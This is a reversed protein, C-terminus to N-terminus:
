MSQRWIPHKINLWIQRGPLDRPNSFPPLHCCTCLCVCVCVCVCVCSFVSTLTRAMLMRWWCVCEIHLWSCVFSILTHESLVVDFCSGHKKKIEASRARTCSNTSYNLLQNIILAENLGKHLLIALYVTTRHPKSTASALHSCLTSM